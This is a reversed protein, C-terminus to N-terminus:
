FLWKWSPCNQGWIVNPFAQLGQQSDCSPHLPPTVPRWHASTLVQLSLRPHSKKVGHVTAWCPASTLSARLYEVTCVVTGAGGLIIQGWFDFTCFHPWSGWSLLVCNIAISLPQRWFPSPSLFVTSVDSWDHGVRQSGLSQLRGPEEIWPIRYAIVPTPQWARRWSGPISRM